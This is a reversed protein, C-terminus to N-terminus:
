LHYYGPILLALPCLQSIWYLWYSKTLFQIHFYSHPFHCNHNQPMLMQTLPATMYSSPAFQFFLLRPCRLQFAKSLNLPIHWTAHLHYTFGYFYIHDGLSITHLSFLQPSLVWGHFVGFNLLCTSSFYVTFSHTLLLWLFSFVLFCLINLLVSHNGM